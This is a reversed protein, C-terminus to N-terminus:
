FKLNSNSINVKPSTESIHTVGLPKEPLNTPIRDVFTAPFDGTKGCMEGHLWQM